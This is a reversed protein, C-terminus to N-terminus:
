QCSGGGDAKVDFFIVSRWGDPFVFYPTPCYGRCWLFTRNKM